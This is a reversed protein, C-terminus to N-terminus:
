QRWKLPTPGTPIRPAGFLTSYRKGMTQKSRSGPLELWDDDVAWAPDAARWGNREAAADFDERPVQCSGLDCAASELWALVTRRPGRDEGALGYAGASAM